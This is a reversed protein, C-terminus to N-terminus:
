KFYSCWDHEPGRGGSISIALAAIEEISTFNRSTRQSSCSAHHASIDQKEVNLLRGALVQFAM